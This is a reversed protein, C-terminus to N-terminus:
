GTVRKNKLFPEVIDKNKLLLQERLRHRARHLRSKLTGLPLELIQSLETLSYGEIDHLSIVAQQEPNLTKISRQLERTTLNQEHVQHPLGQDNPLSDIIENSQNEKQDIPLRNKKRYNDIFQHYLSRLLWNSLKEVENFNVKKEYLRLLLDQVLDEADDQNSTLRYAQQYLRQLHPRIAASFREESNAKFITLISM